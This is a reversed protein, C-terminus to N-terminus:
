WWHWSIFGAWGDVAPWICALETEALLSSICILSNYRACFIANWDIDQLNGPLSCYIRSSVQFHFPFQSAGCSHTEIVPALGYWLLNAIDFVLNTYKVKLRCTKNGDM